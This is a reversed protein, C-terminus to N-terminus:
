SVSGDNNLGGIKVGIMVKIGSSEDAKKEVISAGDYGMHELGWEAARRAVDLSDDTERELAKDMAQKHVRVYHSASQLFEAKANLVWERITAPQRDLVVALAKVKEESVAGENNAVLEAILAKEELRRNGRKKRYVRNARDIFAKPRSGM